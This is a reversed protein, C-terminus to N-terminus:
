ISPIPCPSPLFSDGRVDTQKGVMFVSLEGPPLLYQLCLGSFARSSAPHSRTDRHLLLFSPPVCSGHWKKQLSFVMHSWHLWSPLSSLSKSTGSLNNPSSSGPRHTWLIHMKLGPALLLPLAVWWEGRDKHVDSVLSFPPILYGWNKQRKVM